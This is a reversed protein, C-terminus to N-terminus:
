LLMLQIMPHISRDIHFHLNDAVAANLDMLVSFVSADNFNQVLEPYYQKTYNILGQRIAEFDRDTYNIKNNAM